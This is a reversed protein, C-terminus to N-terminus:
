DHGQSKLDSTSVCQGPGWSCWLPYKATECGIELASATVDDLPHTPRPQLLMWSFQSLHFYHSFLGLAACSEESLVRGRFASVLFCIGELNLEAM